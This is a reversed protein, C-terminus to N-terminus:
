TKQHSPICISKTALLIVNMEQNHQGRTYEKLEKGLLRTIGRSPYHKLAVLNQNKNKHSSKNRVLKICVGACLRLELSVKLEYSWLRPSNCRQRETMRHDYLSIVTYALNIIKTM